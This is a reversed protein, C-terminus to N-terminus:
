GRRPLPPLTPWWCRCLCTSLRPSCHRLCMQLVSSTVEVRGHHVLDPLPYRPQVVFCAQAVLEAVLLNSLEQKSRPGDTLDHFYQLGELLISRLHAVRISVDCCGRSTKLLFADGGLWLTGHGGSDSLVLVHLVEPVLGQVLLQLRVDHPQVALHLQITLQIIVLHGPRQEVQVGRCGPFDEPSQFFVRFLDAVGVSVHQACRLACAAFTPAFSWGSQLHWFRGQGGSCWGTRFVLLNRPAHAPQVLVDLQWSGQVKIPQGRGEALDPVVWGQLNQIVQLLVGVCHPVGRGVDDRADSLYSISLACSHWGWTAYRYRRRGGRSTAPDLRRPM